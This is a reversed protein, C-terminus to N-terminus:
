TRDTTEGDGGVPEETGSHQVEQIENYIARAVGEVLEDIQPGDAIEGLVYIVAMLTAIMFKEDVSITEGGILYQKGNEGYM